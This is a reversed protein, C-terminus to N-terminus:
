KLEELCKEIFEKQNEDRGTYDGSWDHEEFFKSAEAKNDFWVIRGKLDDMLEQVEEIERCGQLADCGSCSGWGFQLWGYKDGYKYLVRSDGQYDEDDVKVVIEGFEKLMPNYDYWCYSDKEDYIEKAKKM